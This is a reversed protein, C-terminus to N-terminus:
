PLLSYLKLYGGCVEIDVAIEFMYKANGALGVRKGVYENPTLPLCKAQLM